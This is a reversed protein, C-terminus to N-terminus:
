YSNVISKIKSMVAECQKRGDEINKVEAKSKGFWEELGNDFGSAPNYYNSALFPHHVFVRGGVSEYVEFNGFITKAIIKRRTVKKGCYKFPEKPQEKWTM